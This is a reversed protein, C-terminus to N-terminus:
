HASWARNRRCFASRPIVGMHIESKVNAVPAATQRLTAAMMICGALCRGRRPYRGRRRKPGPV